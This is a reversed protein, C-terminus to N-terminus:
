PQLHRSCCGPRPGLCCTKITRGMGVERIWGKVEQIKEKNAAGVAGAAGAGAGAPALSFGGQGFM